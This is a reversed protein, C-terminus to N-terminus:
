HSLVTNPSCRRSNSNRRADPWMGFETTIRTLFSRVKDDDLNSDYGGCDIGAVNDTDAGPGTHSSNLGTYDNLGDNNMDINWVYMQSEMTIMM